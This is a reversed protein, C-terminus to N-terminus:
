AQLKDVPRQRRAAFALTHGLEHMFTGGQMDSWETDFTTPSGWSQATCSAKDAFDVGPCPPLSNAGASLTVTFDAGGIKAVGSYPLPTSPASLTSWQHAFITYRFLLRKANIIQQCNASLRDAQTGFHGSSAGTGCSSTGNKLYNFSTSGTGGFVMPNIEAIAEDTLAHLNVGNTSDPNTVPAKAFAATIAALPLTSVALAQGNPKKNPQHTHQGTGVSCTGGTVTGTCMYDIEVFLDKHMPNAAKAPDVTQLNLDLVGDGDFDIGFTEWHDLLGDGDSDLHEGRLIMQGSTSTSVWFAVRHDGPSPTRTLGSDDVMANSLQDFVSIGTVTTASAIKAGVQIVPIPRYVHSVLTGSQVLLDTRVTWLGQNATFLNLGSALNPTAIFSVVISDGDLGANGTATHTVAIRNQWETSSAFNAPDFTSFYVHTPTTGPLDELEGAPICQGASQEVSDCWGNSNFPPATSSPDEILKSGLGGNTLSTPTSFGAIRIISSVSGSQIIAAFIGPGTNTNWHSAGASNMDGAFAVVVGDRSIGPSQGLSNFETTDAITIQTSTSLNNAFLIIPSTTTNGQRVVVQGTDAIMPRLPVSMPLENFPPNLASNPTALLDIFSQNSASFVVNGSNNVSPQAYVTSFPDTATIAKAITTFTGPNNGDWIRILSPPPSGSVRDRAVVQKNNNIQVALGFARTTSLFGPTIWTLNTQPNWVFVGEGLAGSSGGIQGVFAVEGKDNLSPQSGFGTITGATTNQGTQAVVDFKYFKGPWCNPASCTQGFMSSNFFYVITFLLLSLNQLVCTM